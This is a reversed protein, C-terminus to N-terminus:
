GSMGERTSIVPVGHGFVTTYENWQMASDAACLMKTEESLSTSTSGCYSRSLTGGSSAGLTPITVHTYRPLFAAPNKEPSVAIPMDTSIVAPTSTALRSSPIFNPNPGVVTTRLSEKALM